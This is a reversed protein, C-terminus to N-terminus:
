EVNEESMNASSSDGAESRAISARHVPQDRQLLLGRSSIQKVDRPIVSHEVWILGQAPDPTYTTQKSTIKLLDCCSSCTESLPGEEAIIDLSFRSHRSGSKDTRQIVLRTIWFFRAVRAEKYWCGQKKYKTEMVGYNKPLRPRATCTIRLSRDFWESVYNHCLLRFTEMSEVAQLSHM